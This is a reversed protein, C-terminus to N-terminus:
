DEHSFTTANNSKKASFISAKSKGAHFRSFYTCHRLCCEFIDNNINGNHGLGEFFNTSSTIQRLRFNIPHFRCFHTKFKAGQLVSIRFIPTVWAQGVFDSKSITFICLITRCSPSPSPLPPNICMLRLPCSRSGTYVPLSM